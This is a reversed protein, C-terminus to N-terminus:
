KRRRVIWRAIGFGLLAVLVGILAGARRRSPGRRGSPLAAPEDVAADSPEVETKDPEVEGQADDDRIGEDDGSGDYDAGGADSVGENNLDPM